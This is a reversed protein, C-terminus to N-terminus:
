KKPIIAIVDMEGWDYVLEVYFYNALDKYILEQIELDDYNFKYLDRELEKLDSSKLLNYQKVEYDLCILNHLETM